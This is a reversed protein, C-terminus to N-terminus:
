GADRQRVLRKLELKATEGVTSFELGHAFGTGTAERWRVKGTFELFRGAVSPELSVHLEQGVEYPVILAIRVGESSVDLLEGLALPAGDRGLLHAAVLLPRREQSRREAERARAEAEATEARCRAARQAAEIAGSCTELLRSMHFPRAVFGAIGGEVGGVFAEYRGHLGMGVAAPPAEMGGLADLLERTGGGPLDLNLLVLDVGRGALHARAAGADPAESCSYRADELVRRLLARVEPEDDVILIRRM